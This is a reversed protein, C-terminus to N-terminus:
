FIQSKFNVFLSKPDNKLENRKWFLSIFSFFTLPIQSSWFIRSSSFLIMLKIYKRPFFLSAACYSAIDNPVGIAKQMVTAGKTRGMNHRWKNLSYTCLLWEFLLHHTRTKIQTVNKFKKDIIKFGLKGQDTLYM